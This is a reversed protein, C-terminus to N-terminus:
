SVPATKGINAHYIEADAKDQTWQIPGLFQHHISNNILQALTDNAKAQVGCHKEFFNRCRFLTQEFKVEDSKEFIFKVSNTIGTVAGKYDSMDVDEKAEMARCPVTLFDWLEDKSTESKPLGTIQWIYHGEPPLPPREIEAVKKGAAEAFNLAM